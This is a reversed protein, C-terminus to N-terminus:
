VGGLERLSQDAPTDRLRHDDSEIAQIALPVAQPDKLWALQLLAEQQLEYEKPDAAYKRWAAAAQDKPLMYIRKQEAVIQDMTLKEGERKIGVFLLVGGILALLLGVIVVKVGISGKKFDAEDPVHAM